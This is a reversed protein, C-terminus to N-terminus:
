EGQGEDFESVWDDKPPEFDPEAKAGLKNVVMSQEASMRYSSCVTAIIQGPTKKGSQILDRWKGLSAQFKDDPYDPLQEPSGREKIVEGTEADFVAGDSYLDKGAMEEATAQGCSEPFAMRLAQAQACKALQAYPRKAWMANPASSDRGKTAYNERWREVATFEAVHGNNLARKVTVRCWQPYTISVGDLKDAVDPGFDPESIGALQGSRAANVRYLNIGPMIVDRNARAKSDWMPVIHVPKQMVDLGAANCYGIVMKISDDNAGPYLSNRLVEILEIDSIKQIENM